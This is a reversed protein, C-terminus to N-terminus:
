TTIQVPTASEFQLLALYVAVEKDSLGLEELYKELM